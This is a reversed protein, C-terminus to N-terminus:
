VKKLGGTTSWLVFIGGILGVVSLLYGIIHTNSDSWNSNSYSLSQVTGNINQNTDYSYSTTITAGVEYQLGTNLIVLSLIFIIAFGILALASWDSFVFGLIVLVLALLTIFGFLELIM